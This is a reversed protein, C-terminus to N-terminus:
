AEMKQGLTCKRLLIIANLSRMKKHQPKLPNICGFATLTMPLYQLVFVLTLFNLNSCTHYSIKTPGLLPLFTNILSRWFHSQLFLHEWLYM